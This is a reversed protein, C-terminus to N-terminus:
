LLYGARVAKAYNAIKKLEEPVNASNPRAVENKFEDPVNRFTNLFKDSAYVSAAAAIADTTKINKFIDSAESGRIWTENDMMKKLQKESVEDVANAKYTSLIGADIKELTDALKKLENANGMGITWANHIMMFANEPIIINDGAMAIVSAISAALGDVYVTKTGSCRKLMNYIAVGAFVDGGASNIHIDVDSDGIEDILKKVNSPCQDDNTWRSWEDSVIDGFFYLEANKDDTSNKFECFDYKM